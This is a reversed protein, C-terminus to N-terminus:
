LKHWLANSISNRMMEDIMILLAEKGSFFVFPVHCMLVLMFSLQCIKAEWFSKTPDDYHRATGINELVSSTLSHGFMLSSITGVMLYISGTLM